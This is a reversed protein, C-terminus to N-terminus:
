AHREATSDGLISSRQKRRPNSFLGEECAARKALTERRGGPRGGAPGAQARGAQGAEGSESPRRQREQPRTAITRKREVRALEAQQRARM